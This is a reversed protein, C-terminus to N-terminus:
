LIKIPSAEDPDPIFLQDEALKRNALVQPRGNIRLSRIRMDQIRAESGLISERIRNIILTQGMRIRSIYALLSSEALERILAKDVEAVDSFILEIDISIPLYRPERVIFRTGFAVKAQIASQVLTITSTPVRNGQPILLVDFSGAGESFQTLKVDAIGPVGLLALRIATENAGETSTVAKRIRFRLGEDTERSASQSIDDRNTVLVTQDLLSHRVLTGPGVNSEPGVAQARATVFIETSAAPTEHAEDVIFSVSLDNTSITTGSPIEAKSADGVKPIVDGLTGTSVYFRINRDSGTTFSFIEEKRTIGVMDGLLDLFYGSATSVFSMALATDVTTYLTSIEQNAIDILARATSGPTLLTVDTNEIVYQISDANLEALSKTKIM